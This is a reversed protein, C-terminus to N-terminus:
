RVAAARRVHWTPPVAGASWCLGFECARLHKRLAISSAIVVAISVSSRSSRNPYASWSEKKGGPEKATHRQPQPKANDSTHAPLNTNKKRDCGECLINGPIERQCHQSEGQSHLPAGAVGRWNVLAMVAAVVDMVGYHRRASAVIM